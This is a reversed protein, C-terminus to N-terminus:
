EICKSWLTFVYLLVLPIFIFAWHIEFILYFMGLFVIAFIILVIMLLLVKLFSENTERMSKKFKEIDM